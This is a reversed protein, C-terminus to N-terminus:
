IRDNKSYLKIKRELSTACITLPDFVDSCLPHYPTQMNAIESVKSNKEIALSLCNLIGVINEDSFIQAGIIEGKENAVLLYSIKKNSYYEPYISGTYFSYTVEFGFNKAKEKTLGVAGVFKDGIKSVFVNINEKLRENFGCINKAVIEAQRVALSALMTIERKKTFFNYYEVCDGCAYIFPDSTRMKENVVIAKDVKLGSNKALDINPQFGMCCIALDHKIKKEGENTILKLYNEGIEEIRVKLHIEVGNEKLYNEVLKSIQEDFYNKLVRDEMEILRVEYGKKALCMATETGVFGAGIISIKARKKLSKSIKEYDEFTKFTLLKDDINKARSGTALVLYDYELLKGDSLFVKKSKRDISKVEKKLMVKIKNEKFHREDFIFIKGKEVDGSFIYPLACPSYFKRDRMEILIIEAEKNLKRLFFACSTGAIGGGVIVVRM